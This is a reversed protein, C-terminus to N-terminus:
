TVTLERDPKERGPYPPQCPLASKIVAITRQGIGAVLTRQRVSARDKSSKHHLM